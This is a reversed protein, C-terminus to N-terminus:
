PGFIPQNRGFLSLPRYRRRHTSPPMAGNKRVRWTAFVGIGALLVACIVLAPVLLFRYDTSDEIYDFKLSYRFSDGEVPTTTSVQSELISAKPLALEQAIM